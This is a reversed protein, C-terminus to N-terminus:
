PLVKRVQVVFTHIVATYEGKVSVIILLCHFSVSTSNAQQYQRSLQSFWVEMGTWSFAFPCSYFPCSFVVGSLELHPAGSLLWAPFPSMKVLLGSPFQSKSTNTVQHTRCSPSFVKRKSVTTKGAWDPQILQSCWTAIFKIELFLSSTCCHISVAMICFLLFCLM